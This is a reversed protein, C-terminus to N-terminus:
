RGEIAAEFADLEGASLVQDNPYTYLDDVTEIDPAIQLADESIENCFMDRYHAQANKIQRPTM